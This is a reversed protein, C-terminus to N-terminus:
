KAMRKEVNRLTQIITLRGGTRSKGAFEKVPSSFGLARERIEAELRGFVQEMLCQFLSLDHKEVTYLISCYQLVERQPSPFEISPYSAADLPSEVRGVAWLYLRLLARHEAPIGKLCFDILDDVNEITPYFHLIFARIIHRTAIQCVRRDLEPDEESFSMLHDRLDQASGSMSTPVNNVCSLPKVSASSQSSFKQSLMILVIMRLPNHSSNAFLCGTAKGVGKICTIM